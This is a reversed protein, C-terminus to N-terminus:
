DAKRGGKLVKLAPQHRHGGMYHRRATTGRDAHGVVMAIDAVATQAEQEMATMYTGRLGHPPAPRTGAAECVDYVRRRLWKDEWPRGPCRNSEFLLQAPTKGECLEEFDAVLTPPLTVSRKSTATKVSWGDEELDDAELDRIWIRDDEFDIDAAQLHMVEGTRMGTLLPLQTAIRDAAKPLAAATELYRRMESKNRLQPKGRGMKRKARKGVWPKDEPDLFDAPHVELYSRRVCWGLFECIIFYRSRQYGLANGAKKMRAIFGKLWHTNVVEIPADPAQERFFKLDARSRSLTRKSWADNDLKQKIFALCAQEITTLNPDPIGLDIRCAKVLLKAKRPNEAFHTTREGAHDFQVVRYQVSGRYKEKYPGLVRAGKKQRGM